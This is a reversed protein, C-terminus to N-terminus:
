PVANFSREFDGVVRLIEDFDPTDGFFMAERMAEYDQEWATRHEDVPLLRLSGPRLSDQAEKSKRFFVKRHEAVRGFLDESAVARDGIGAGILCWLDYYHRALRAGPGHTGARYTEEHLLMAKEWFTREPAVTRLAFTADPLEGPLAAAIYPQIDPHASPETDSRAGLEIKIVPRLYGGAAFVAPYRFLVTQGDVDAADGDLAWDLNPPIRSQFREAVLRYLRKQVFEQCASRLEDLRKGRQTSSPADEPAREGGFGLFDRDVVVDLDESFRQILSWAKSLSTGGKFTLRPGIDDLTFLERLTWCAWFDKEISPAALGLRAGAEQCLATREATPRTLFTDM